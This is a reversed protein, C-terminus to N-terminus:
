AAARAAVTAAKRKSALMKVLVFAAVGTALLAVGLVPRYFLWALAITILTFPAAVSVAVLALGMRLIDGLFPLVDAVVALPRFVLFVGLAMVVFGVLRLIWTLMANDSEAQKFMAAAPKLGPQLLELADGAKTQYPGFSNGVQAAIISVDAPPVKTYTIKIDGVEPNAPDAGLYIGGDVVRPGAPAAAAAPAAVHHKGRAVKTATAKKAKKGKPAAKVPEEAAPAAAETVAAKSTKVMDATVALREDGPVRDILTDSLSFAGVTVPSARWSESGVAMSAPNKHGAPEKFSESDQLADKWQKQYKYTKVTEEGGGLKKHKKTESEEVWQYMQAKRELKLAVASVGFQPDTVTASTVAKGTVHVLNGEHSPEVKDSQVSVVAGAGEKLSKYTQVARGENWWLVPFAVIFLLLGIVVEKISEFLRSFWSQSSTETIEDSM